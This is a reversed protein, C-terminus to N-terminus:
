FQRALRNLYVIHGAWGLLVFAGAFPIALGAGPNDTNIIASGFGDAGALDDGEGPERDGYDLENEFGLDPLTPPTLGPTNNSSNSLGPPPVGVGLDPLTPTSTSGPKPATTTPAPRTDLTAVGTSAVPSLIPGDVGDRIARVRYRYEGPDTVTDTASPAADAAIDEGVQTYPGFDAEDDAPGAREVRYGLIQLASAPLPTWTVTVTKGSRTAAVTTVPAPPVAVTVTASLTLRDVTIPTSGTTSYAATATITFRGNCPWQVSDAEVDDTTTTATDFEVRSKGSPPAEKPPDALTAAAPEPVCSAEAPLTFDATDAAAFNYAVSQISATGGTNRVFVGGLDFQTSGRTVPAETTATAFDEATFGSGEWATPITTTPPPVTQALAAPAGLLLSVGVLTAVRRVTGM